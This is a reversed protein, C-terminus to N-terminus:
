SIVLSIESLLFGKRKEGTSFNVIVSWLFSGSWRIHEAKSRVAATGTNYVYMCVYMYVYM